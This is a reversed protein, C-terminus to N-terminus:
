PAPVEDIVYVVTSESESGQSRHREDGPIVFGMGPRCPVSRNDFHITFEGRLVYGQHGTECWNLENFGAPLELLRVRYGGTYAIKVRGDAGPKHWKEWPISDFDIGVLAPTVTSM